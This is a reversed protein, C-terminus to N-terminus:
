DIDFNRQGCGPCVATDKVQKWSEYTWWKMTFFRKAHQFILGAMLRWSHMRNKEIKIYRPKLYWLIDDYIILSIPNYGFARFKWVKWTWHWNWFDDQSWDCSHSHLYAM